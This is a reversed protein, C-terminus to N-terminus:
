AARCERCFTCYSPVFVACVTLPCGPARSCRIWCARIRLQAASRWRVIHTCMRERMRARSAQAHAHQSFAVGEQWKGLEHGGQRRCAGAGTERAGVEFRFSRWARNNSSWGWGKPYSTTDPGQPTRGASFTTAPPKMMPTSTERAAVLGGARPPKFAM